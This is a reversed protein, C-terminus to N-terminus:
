DTWGQQPKNYSIDKMYPYRFAFPAFYNPLGEKLRADLEEQLYDAMKNKPNWAGHFHRDYEICIQHLKVLRGEGWIDKGVMQPDRLANFIYDFCQQFGVDRGAEFFRQDREDRKKLFDNKAM